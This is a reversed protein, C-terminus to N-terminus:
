QLEKADKEEFPMADLLNQLSNNNTPLATIDNDKLFQRAVNLDGAKAEGSKIKKTLDDALLVHLDSLKKNIAM